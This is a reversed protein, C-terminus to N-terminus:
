NTEKAKKIIWDETAAKREMANSEDDLKDCDFRFMRRSRILRKEKNDNNPEFALARLITSRCEGLFLPYWVTSIKTKFDALKEGGCHLKCQNETKSIALRITQKTKQSGNPGFIIIRVKYSM